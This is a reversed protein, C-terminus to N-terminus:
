DPLDIVDEIEKSAGADHEAEWSSAGLKRRGAAILKDLDHRRPTQLVTFRGGSMRLSLAPRIGRQSEAAGLLRAARPWHDSSAAVGALGELAFAVAPPDEGRRAETLARRYRDAAGNIDGEAEAAAGLLGYAVSAGAPIDTRQYLDLTQEAAEIAAGPEGSGLHRDAISSLALALTTPAMARALQLAESQLGEALELDGLKMALCARSVTVFVYQGWLGLESLGLAAKALASASTEYDGRAAALEGQHGLSVATRFADGAAGLRRAAVTFATEAAPLDSDREAIHGDLFFVIGEEWPGEAEDFAARSRGMLEAARGPRAQALELQAMLFACVAWGVRDGTQKWLSLAGTQDASQDLRGAPLRLYEGWTLAWARVELDGGNPDSLARDLWRLGEHARGTLWWYWGLGGAITLAVDTDGDDLAYEFAARLDDMGDTVSRLWQAQGVGRFAARSRRALEAFWAAHRARVEDASGSETLRERGYQALTQLMSYRPKGEIHEVSLLSKDVLHGVIDDVDPSPLDQDSCLAEATALDWSSALVSLCQFVTREEDFLLDYSWDVVARLTQQRPLATRAGGTLLRFRDDLRDAIQAVPFARVRAAALEIALPLGDLRRCVDEVVPTTETTLQFRVDAAGACEAFMATADEVNLPPLPWIREGPLGIGERSTALITLEACSALLEEAVRATEGILHECNDLVILTEADGIYSAVGALSGATTDGSVPIEMVTAIAPAIGDPDALAALEVMWAGGPFGAQVARAVELAVRTKGAGGVGTVTVLRRQRILECLECIEHVRGVTATLPAKLNNRPRAPRGPAKIEQAALELSPDGAAIAAELRRLQTGPELGLDDALLRRGDQFVRLAEGQRGSRYLALMLLGRLRERLPSEAVLAELPGVLERHLGCALDAEARDEIVALRSETLRVVEPQAWEEYQFDALADGRWLSLAEGLLKSGSQPDGAALVRRGQAVFQDFRSVDVAAPSANLLYGPRTSRVMDPESLCRRLRAVLSQLANTAGAPPNEAWLDEMLRDASVVQGARLALMALLAAVRPGGVPVKAGDADRVELPGLLGFEV